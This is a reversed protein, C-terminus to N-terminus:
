DFDSGHSSPVTCKLENIFDADNKIKQYFENIKAFEKEIQPSVFRGGYEGFYGKENPFKNINYKM